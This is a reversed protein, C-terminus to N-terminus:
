LFMDRSSSPQVRYSRVRGLSSCFSVGTACSRGRWHHITTPEDLWRHEPESWHHRGYNHFWDTRESFSTAAHDRTDGFLKAIHEVPICHVWAGGRDEFNSSPTGARLTILVGHCVRSMGPPTVTDRSDVRIRRIEQIGVAVMTPASKGGLQNRFFATLGFSSRACCQFEEAARSCSVVQGELRFRLSPVMTSLAGGRRRGRLFAAGNGGLRTRLQPCHCATM